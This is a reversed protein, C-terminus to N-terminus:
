EQPRADILNNDGIAAGIIDGGATINNIPSYNSNHTSFDNVLVGDQQGEMLAYANAVVKTIFQRDPSKFFLEKGSNM